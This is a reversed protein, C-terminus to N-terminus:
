QGAELMAPYGSSTYAVEYDEHLVLAAGFFDLNFEAIFPSYITLTGRGDWLGDKYLQRAVGVACRFVSDDVLGGAGVKVQTDWNPIGNGSSPSQSLNSM